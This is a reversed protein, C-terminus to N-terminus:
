DELIVQPLVLLNNGYWGVSGDKQGLLSLVTIDWYRARNATRKCEAANKRSWLAAATPTRPSTSAWFGPPYIGWVAAVDDFYQSLKFRAGVLLNASGVVLLL